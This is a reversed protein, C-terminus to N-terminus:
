NNKLHSKSYDHPAIKVKRTGCEPDNMKANMKKRTIEAMELTDETSYVIALAHNDKIIEYGNYLAPQLQKARTLCL